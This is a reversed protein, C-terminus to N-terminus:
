VKENSKVEWKSRDIRVEPIKKMRIANCIEVYCDFCLDVRKMELDPYGGKIRPKKLWYQMDHNGIFSGCIDCMRCNVKM